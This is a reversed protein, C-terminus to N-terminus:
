QQEQMQAEMIMQQMKQQLGADSQVAMFIEQFRELELGEDEIAAILKVEM